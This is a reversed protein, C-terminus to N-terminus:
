KHHNKKKKRKKRHQGGQEVHQGAVWSLPVFHNVHEFDMENSTSLHIMHLALIARRVAAHRQFCEASCYQLCRAFRCRRKALNSCQNASCYGIAPSFSQTSNNDANSKKKWITLYTADTGWMPLPINNKEECYFNGRLMSEFAKNGTMGQWEGVHTVTEGGNDVYQSLAIAAMESAPPPYCLLLSTNAGNSTLMSQAQEFSQAQHVDIFAPVNGHYENSAVEAGAVTAQRPPIIDYPFVTDPREKKLHSALLASFYGTGAGAEVVSDQNDLVDSVAELAQQTPVAYAYFNAPYDRVSGRWTEAAPSLGYTEHRILPDSHNDCHKMNLAAKLAIPSKFFTYRTTWIHRISEVFRSQWLTLLPNSQKVPAEAPGLRDKLCWSNLLLERTGDDLPATFSTSSHEDHKMEGLFVGLSAAGADTADWALGPCTFYTPPHPVLSTLDAQDTSAISFCAYYCRYYVGDCAALAALRSEILELGAAKANTNSSCAVKIAEKYTLTTKVLESVKLRLLDIDSSSILALSSARNNEMKKVRALMKGLHLDLKNTILKSSSAVANIPPSLHKHQKESENPYYEAMLCRANRSSTIASAISIASFPDDKNEKRATDSSSICLEHTAASKGCSTCSNSGYKAENDCTTYGNCDHSLGPGLVLRRHVNKHHCCPWQFPNQTLRTDIFSASVGKVGKSLDRTRKKKRRKHPREKEKKESTVESITTTTTSAAPGGGMQSLLLEIADDGTLAAM